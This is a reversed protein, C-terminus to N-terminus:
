MFIHRSSNFFKFTSRAMWCANTTFASSHPRQWHWCTFDSEFESRLTSFLVWLSSIAAGHLFIWKTIQVWIIIATISCVASCIAVSHACGRAAFCNQHSNPTHGHTVSTVSSALQSLFILYLKVTLWHLTDIYHPLLQSTLGPTSPPPHIFFMVCKVWLHPM